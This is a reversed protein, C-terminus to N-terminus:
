WRKTSTNSRDEPGAGISFPPLNKKFDRLQESFRVSEFIMGKKKMKTLAQGKPLDFYIRGSRALYSRGDISVLEMNSSAPVANSEVVITGASYLNDLNWCLGPPLEPLIVRDFTGEIKTEGINPLLTFTEGSRFSITEAPRWELIGDLHNITDSDLRLSQADAFVLRGSSMTLGGGLTVAGCDVIKVSHGALDIGGSLQLGAGARVAIEVDAGIRLPVDIRHSGRLVEIIASVQPKKRGEDQPSVLSLSGRGRITYPHISNFRLGRITRERNLTVTSASPTASGFNSIEQTTDPRNWYFWNHLHDWDGSGQFTWSREGPPPQRVDIRDEFVVGEGSTIKLFNGLLDFHLIRGGLERVLVGDDTDAALGDVPGLLDGEFETGLIFDGLPAPAHGTREHRRVMGDAIELYHDPSASRFNEIRHFTILNSDHGRPPRRAIGPEGSIDFATRSAIILDDGDMDFNFYQFAEFGVNPSYLFLRIVDWHVLDESSVLAATNRILNWPEHHDFHASLVPNSLVYFRRSVPDYAAAFKKDAGPLAVWDGPGASLLANASNEKHRFLITHSFYPSKTNEFQVKPLVVVGQEPSAVIQAESMVKWEGSPFDPLPGLVGSKGVPSWNKPDLLDEGVRASMLRNGGVAIWLRTAGKRDKWLVPNMPTGGRSDPSLEVPESWTMGNDTSKLIRPPGSDSKYGWLFVVGDVVFLSGRKVDQMPSSPVETWSAGKDDSRYIMTTGSVSAPPNLSPGFLNFALLYAGDPLVVISPSTTYIRNPVLWRSLPSDRSYVVTGPVDSLTQAIAEPGPFGLWVMALFCSFRKM